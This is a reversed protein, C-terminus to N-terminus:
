QSKSAETLAAKTCKVEVRVALSHSYCERCGRQTNVAVVVYKIRIFIPLATSRKM